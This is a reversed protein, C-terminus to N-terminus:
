AVIGTVATCLARQTLNSVGAGYVRVTGVGYRVGGTVTPHTFASVAVVQVVSHAHQSSYPVAAARVDVTRCSHSVARTDTSVTFTHGSEYNSSIVRPTLYTLITRLETLSFSHFKTILLKNGSHVVTYLLNLLISVYLFYM